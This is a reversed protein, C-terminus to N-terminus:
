SGMGEVILGNVLFPGPVFVERFPFTFRGKHRVYGNLRRRPRQLMRILGKREMRDTLSHIRSRPTLTKAAKTPHLDAQMAGEDGSENNDTELQLETEVMPLVDDKRPKAYGFSNSFHRDVDRIKKRTDPIYCLVLNWYEVQGVM